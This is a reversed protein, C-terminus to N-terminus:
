ANPVMPAPDSLIGRKLYKDMDGFISQMQPSMLGPQQWDPNQQPFVGARIYADGRNNQMWDNYSGAGYPSAKEQEYAGTNMQAHNDPIAGILRQKMDMWQPDVPAGTQPNVAGLHHLMDGAITQQLDPGSKINPNFIETTLKGPSPNESEWPQYFELQRDDGPGSPQGQKVSLNGLFPALTPYTKGLAAIDSAYPTTQISATKDGQMLLRAIDDRATM